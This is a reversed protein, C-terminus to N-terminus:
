APDGVAHGLGLEVLPLLHKRNGNGVDHRAHEAADGGGRRQGACGQVDLAAGGGADGADDARQADDRQGEDEEGVELVERQGVDGGDEDVDRDPHDLDVLDLVDVGVRHPSAQKCRGQPGPGSQESAQAAVFEQGRGRCVGLWGGRGAHAGIRAAARAPLPVEHDHHHHRRRADEHLRRRADYHPDQQAQALAGEELGLGPDEALQALAIRDDGLEVAVQHTHLHEHAVRNSGRHSRLIIVLVRPLCYLLLHELAEWLRGEKVM